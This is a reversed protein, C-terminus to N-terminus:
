GKKTGTNTRGLRESSTKRLMLVAGLEVTVVALIAHAMEPPKAELLHAALRLRRAPTMEKLEAMIDDISEAGSM